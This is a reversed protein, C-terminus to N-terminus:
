EGTIAETVEEEKYVEIGTETANGQLETVPNNRPAEKVTGIIQRRTEQMLKASNVELLWKNSAEGDLKFTAV